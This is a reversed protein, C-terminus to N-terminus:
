GASSRGSTAGNRDERDQSERLANADGVGAAAVWRTQRVPRAPRATAGGTEENPCPCVPPRAGGGLGAPKQRWPQGCEKGDSAAHDAPRAGERLPDGSGTAPPRWPGAGNAFGLLILRGLGAIQDLHVREIQAQDGTQHPLVEGGTIGDGAPIDAFNVAAGGGGGGGQEEIGQQGTSGKGDRGDLEIAAARELSEARLSALLARQAEEQERGTGGLEMAGELAGVASVGLFKILDGGAGKLDGSEIAFELAPLEDVGEAGVLSEM